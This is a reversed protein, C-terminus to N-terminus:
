DFHSDAPRQRQHERERCSEGEVLARHLTYYCMCRGAAARCLNQSRRESNARVRGGHERREREKVREKNIEKEKEKKREKKRENIREKKRDSFFDFFELSSLQSPETM